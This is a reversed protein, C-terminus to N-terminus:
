SIRSIRGGFLPRITVRYMLSQRITERLLVYNKPPSCIRWMQNLCFVCFCFSKCVVSYKTNLCVQEFCGIDAIYHEYIYPNLQRAQSRTTNRLYHNFSPNPPSHFGFQIAGDIVESIVSAPTHFRCLFVTM